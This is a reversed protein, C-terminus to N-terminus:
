SITKVQGNTSGNEQGYRQIKPDSTEASDTDPSCNIIPRPIGVIELM